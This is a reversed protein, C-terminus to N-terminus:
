IYNDLALREKKAEEKTVAEKKGEEAHGFLIASFETYNISGDKDTDYLEYLTKM